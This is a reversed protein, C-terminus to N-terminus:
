ASVTVPTWRAERRAMRAELSEAEYVMAQPEPLGRPLDRLARLNVIAFGSDISAGIYVGCNRCLLFDASHLGFRYRHLAAPSDFIFQVSGDPDSTTLAAHALCFSCQCARVSWQAPVVATAYRFGIAGCHCFGVHEIKALAAM